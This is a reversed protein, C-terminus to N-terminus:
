LSLPEGALQREHRTLEYMDHLLQIDCPRQTVNRRAFMRAQTAVMVDVPAETVQGFLRAYNVFSPVNTTVFGYLMSCAGITKGTFIGTNIASKSYDGVITGIFQMGTAVKRGLYEMNVQGYTNKLDSNCTGAGLNVWSGLYSHGLFGHHQKNTYPEIISGEIEGGIKTTHGLSVNDKIAAHEIVRAGPGLHAPGSLFCYPGISANRELVIPGKRTDAVVHQGLTAGEAAFVGDAIERYTGTALRHRLNESLSALHHRVVDHPYAFMPLDHEVAPLNHAAVAAALATPGVDEAPLELGAPLLALALGDASEVQCPRSTAFIASLQGILQTRPVLRANVLLTPEKASPAADATASGTARDAACITRLHPRVRVAVAADGTEASVAEILDILRYSGCSIQFAARSITIPYLQPALDDEFLVIPM